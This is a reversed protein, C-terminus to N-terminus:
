QVRQAICGRFAANDQLEPPRCTTSLCTTDPTVGRCQSAFLRIEFQTNGYPPRLVCASPNGSAFQVVVDAISVNQGCRLSKWVAEKITWLTMLADLEFGVHGDCWEREPPHTAVMRLADARFPECLEIDVGVSCDSESIVIGVVNGAHSLSIQRSFDLSQPLLVPAGNPDSDFQIHLADKGFESGLVARMALRSNLFQRKKGAPRFQHWRALDRESLAANTLEHEETGCTDPFTALWLRCQPFIEIPDALHM